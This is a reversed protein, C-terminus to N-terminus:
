HHVRLLVKFFYHKQRLRAGFAPLPGEWPGEDKQLQRGRLMLILYQCNLVSSDLWMDWFDM